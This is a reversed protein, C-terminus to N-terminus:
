CGNFGIRTAAECTELTLRAKSCGHGLPMGHPGQRACRAYEAPGVHPFSGHMVKALQETDGGGEPQDCRSAAGNGRQGRRGEQLRRALETEKHDDPASCQTGGNCRETPKPRCRIGRLLADSSKDLGADCQPASWGM